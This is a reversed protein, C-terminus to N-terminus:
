REYAGLDPAAGNFPMGVDIGADVLDSDPALRLYDLEPLSGDPQRPGDVGTPTVSLFDDDTVTVSSDWSNHDVETLDTINFAAEVNDHAVNNKVIYPVGDMHLTVGGCWTLLGQYCNQHAVSHYLEVNCLAGNINYGWMKNQFALTNRITRKLQGANATTRGLKYGNGDGADEFNGPQFGNWFAWSDEIVIMGENDWLDIGDDSNWWMRCGRITNTADLDQVRITLGDSGGWPQNNGIATLPDSNHHFDSNLVLNGDSSGTIAFGFGNHHVDLQEFICHNVDYASLGSYWNSSETQEFGAVELGKLHLYDGRVHVGVTDPFSPSPSIVPTEGPYAWLKILQDPAGHKDFLRQRQDYEFTGGRVFILQGAEVVSWAQNLTFFPETITGPNADDGDPAVYYDAQPVVEFTITLPEGAAGTGGPGAFPTATVTHQGAPLSGGSYDGATDGFLAYPPQDDVQHADDDDLGFVVSGVVEPDTTARISLSATPLLALDVIAGEELPDFGTVAQDADADILELRTVTLIPCAACIGGCDVGTEDQNQIGDDCSPCDECPPTPDTRTDRSEDSSCGALLCFSVILTARATSM